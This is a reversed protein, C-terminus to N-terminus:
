VLYINVELKWYTLCQLNFSFVFIIPPNMHVKFLTLKPVCLSYGVTTPLKKAPLHYNQRSFIPTFNIVISDNTELKEQNQNFRVQLSGSVSFHRDWLLDTRKVTKPWQSWGFPVESKPPKPKTGTKPSRHLHNDYVWYTVNIETIFKYKNGLVSCDFPLVIDSEKSFTACPQLFM